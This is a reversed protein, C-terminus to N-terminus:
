KKKPEIKRYLTATSIGLMNAAKERSGDGHTAEIYHREQQQIFDDLAQGVPMNALEHDAKDGKSHSIVEVMAPEHDIIVTKTM